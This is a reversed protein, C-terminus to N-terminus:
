VCTHACVCPVSFVTANPLLQSAKSSDTQKSNVYTTARIGTMRKVGRGRRTKTVREERKQGRDMEEMSGEM